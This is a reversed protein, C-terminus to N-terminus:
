VEKQLGLASGAECHINLGVSSTRTRWVDGDETFLEARCSLGLGTQNQDPSLRLVSSVNQLSDSEPFSDEIRLSENGMLWQLRLHGVPFVNFVSCLFSAEHGM